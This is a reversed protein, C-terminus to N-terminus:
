TGGSVKSYIKEVSIEFPFGPFHYMAQKDGRVRTTRFVGQM